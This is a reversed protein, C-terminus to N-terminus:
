GRLWPTIIAALAILALVLISLRRLAADPIRARGYNPSAGSITPYSAGVPRSFRRM